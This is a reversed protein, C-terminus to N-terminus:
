KWQYWRVWDVHMRQPFVTTADPSGPWDGGVAVNLLLFFEQHLESQVASTIAASFYQEGDFYWRIESQDWEIGYIHYNDALKAPWPITGYSGSMKHGSDDWHVTGHYRNDRNSGGGIMEMIDIEGCAPWNGSVGMSWFAPWIGQGYPLKIRAEVKGYKFFVKGQTKMRASTYDFGPYTDEELAQIVLSGDEIYANVTRSTYYQLENNGWGNWLSGLDYVWNDMNIETGEFEDAWVLVWSKEPAETASPGRRKSCSLFLLTAACIVALATVFPRSGM